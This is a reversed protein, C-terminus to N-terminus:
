RRADSTIQLTSNLLGDLQPVRCPIQGVERGECCSQAITSRKRLSIIHASKVTKTPAKTRRFRSNQTEAHLHRLHSLRKSGQRLAGLFSYTATRSAYNPCSLCQLNTFDVFPPQPTGWSSSNELEINCILVIYLIRVAMVIFPKNGFM